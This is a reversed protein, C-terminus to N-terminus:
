VWGMVQFIIHLSLLINCGAVGFTLWKNWKELANVKEAIVVKRTAVYSTCFAEAGKCVGDCSSDWYHQCDNCDVETWEDFRKHDSM